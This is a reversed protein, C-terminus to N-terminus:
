RMLLYNLKVLVVDDPFADFTDSLQGTTGTEFPSRGADEILAEEFLSNNRGQSWVVFLTSGPRYEWRFVANATFSSFAFDRRKPFNPLPRLDAPGAVLTFDQFRGRAAFLQGFLQLSMTPGFIVQARTTVDVERTDRSGLIPAYYAQRPGFDGDYTALGELLNAEAELPILDDDSFATPEDAFAGISIGTPTAFLSENATWAREQNGQSVGGELSLLVRDSATWSLGGGVGARTGGAEDAGGRVGIEWRFQSRSDSEYSLRGGVSALNEIPGLGRTERVDFGGLNEAELFFDVEQFGVEFNNFSSVNFGRNTMDSLQWQQSMFAGTSVRRFPGIPDGSNLLYRGGGNVRALDTQRFRGADNIEFGATYLRVGFGPTFYGSVKDLGLYLAGGADRATESGIAPLAPDADELALTETRASAAATGEFVWSEDAFRAAWDAAAAVKRTSGDAFLGAGQSSFATAGVGVYSQGPFEQKARVAGYFRSPDFQTGTAAGLAGFSLGGGTRGTLKTAAIIPATSGIRRTYLLAGDRGTGVTLDFIQTGEVFFPRREQFIVEFTGLNLQAPDVEVQGFDPNVTADLTVNSALGVKVDAGVNGEFAGVGTGPAAESESRSGGALTYPIAQLIPQPQLGAVGDLRGFLRVLGGEAEARTVPAWFSEEGTVPTVRQFQVGWSESGGAFRLQSYPIRIEATWGDDDVRVASTWVADWSDDDDDGELIGDFQVNAATVGFLYATRDDDYSDLAVLFFDADGSDDRRSLTTRVERSSSMRAGIVLGDAARLIRVETADSAPEGESPEFQVFGTAPEAAAWAHEDLVGDLVVPGAPAATITPQPALAFALVLALM